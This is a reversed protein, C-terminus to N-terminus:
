PTVECVPQGNAGLYCRYKCRSANQHNKCWEKDGDSPPSQSPHTHYDGVQITGSPCPSPSGPSSENRGIREPDCRHIKEIVWGVPTHVYGDEIWGRHPSTPFVSGKSADCCILGCYEIQSSDSRSLAAAIAEQAAQDIKEKPCCDKKEELGLYDIGNVPDNLLFNMINIGGREGIPDRSLWRGLQSSYYRFGYYNLGTAADYEKSSFQYRPTYSGDAVLVRGFPDYELRTMVVANSDTASIVNGNGDYHYYAVEDGVAQLIGGIGGADERTGSLDVGHVYQELVENDGDLVAVVLWGDYVYRNTVLIGDELQIRERRRSLGDYRNQVLVDSTQLDSVEILRDAEDWSYARVGDNTM